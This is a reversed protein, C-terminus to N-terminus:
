GASCANKTAAFAQLAELMLGGKQFCLPIPVLPRSYPPAIFANKEGVGERVVFSFNIMRLRGRENFLKKNEGAGKQNRCSIVVNRNWFVGAKELKLKTHRNLGSENSEVSM